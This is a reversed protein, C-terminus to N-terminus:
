LKELDVVIETFKRFVFYSYFYIQAYNQRSKPGINFFMLGVNHTFAKKEPPPPRYYLTVGNSRLHIDCTETALVVTCVVLAPM